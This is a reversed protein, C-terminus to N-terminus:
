RQQDLGQSQARGFGSARFRVLQIGKGGTNLIGFEYDRADGSVAANEILVNEPSAGGAGTDIRIGTRNGAPWPSTPRGNASVLGINRLSANTIRVDRVPGYVVAGALGANVVTLRDIRAASLSYGLKLGFSFANTVDLDSIVLNRVGRGGAAVDVGEWTSDIKARNIVIDSSSQGIDLGDAQWPLDGTDFRAGCREVRVNEIRVHHVDQLQACTVQEQVRVGYFKATTVSGRRERFERIPVRNWGVSAVAAERLPMDGRYPSWIVDHVWLNTLTVNRANSIFLGFGKGHGTIEVDRFDVRDAGDLWLGASDSRSGGETHPGRDIKVRELNVRLPRDDNSRILLTRVGLSLLLRKLDSQPVPSDGCNTLAETSDVVPCTGTILKSTDFPALAQVLTANRLCLDKASRLTGIVRYTRGGGDLCYRDSGQLARGLAATDDARGDGVAGFDQLSRTVPPAFVGDPPSSPAPQARCAAAHVALVVVLVCRMWRAHM